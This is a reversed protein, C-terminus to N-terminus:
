EKKPFNDTSRRYLKVDEIDEKSLEKMLDVVRKGIKPILLHPLIEMLPVLVFAREHMRPHPLILRESERDEQNYVIIDLDITRPGYRITRERGLQQEIEQCVDLLYLAELPTDIEITMNLFDPQETYGVPVTQYISSRKKIEISKHKALLELAGNLHQERPEINTGLAIISRNM